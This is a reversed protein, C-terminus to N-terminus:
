HSDTDFFVEIPRRCRRFTRVLARGGFALTQGQKDRIPFILRHCFRRHCGTIAPSESAPAFGLAFDDIVPGEIGRKQLYLLAQHCHPHTRLQQQYFRTAQTLCPTKDDNGVVGTAIGTPLSLGAQHALLAVVQRFGRQEHHM